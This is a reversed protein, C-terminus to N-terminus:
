EVLVFHGISYNNDGGSPNVVVRDYGKSSADKPVDIIMQQLGRSIGDGPKTLTQMGVVKDGLNYSLEYIDNNDFSINIKPAHTTGPLIVMMGTGAPIVIAGDSRWHDGSQKIRGLENYEIGVGVRTGDPLQDRLQEVATSDSSPPRPPPEQQSYTDAEAKIAANRYDAYYWYASVIGVFLLNGGLLYAWSWKKIHSKLKLLNSMKENESIFDFLLYFIMVLFYLTLGVSTVSTTTYRPYQMVKTYQTVLEILFLLSLGFINFAKNPATMHQIVLLQRMNFYNIQPTTLCFLPIIALYIYEHVPRRNKWIWLATLILSLLALSYLLPKTNNLMIQKQDIGGNSWFTSMDREGRYVLMDGLGVRHSSYSSDNHLLLKEASTKFASAGYLALGLGILIISLGAVGSIFQIHHRAIKKRSYFDYIFYIIYPFFFIVPFVRNLASYALFVGAMLYHERKLMCVSLVLAVLWDFRLLSEGLIPWRGSFTCLFFLLCFLMTDLGFTRAIIIFMIVILMFDIMTIAKANEAPTINSLFGGVVTWTPPPNYGHDIFFYKWIDKKNNRVFYDVDHRFAEWRESTFAKKILERESEIHSRPVMQYDHLNRYSDIYHLRNTNEEDAILVAPYLYFYDLERFYKSNLYYYATDNNDRLQTFFTKDFQYYNFIGLICCGCLIWQMFWDASFLKPARKPSLSFLPNGNTKQILVYALFLGLSIGALIMRNFHSDDQSIPECTYLVFLIEAVMLTALVLLSIHGAKKDNAQSQLGTRNIGSM